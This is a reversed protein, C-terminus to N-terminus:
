GLRSRFERQVGRVLKAADFGIVEAMRVLEIIDIRRQKTEIKAVVSQNWGLAVAVQRQSLGSNSRLEVLTTVFSAYEDDHLSATRFKGSLGGMSRGTLANYCLAMIPKASTRASIIDVGTASCQAGFLQICKLIQVTGERFTPAPQTSYRSPGAPLILLIDDLVRKQPHNLARPLLFYGFKVIEKRM